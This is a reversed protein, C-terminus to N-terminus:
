KALPVWNSCPAFVDAEGDPGFQPVQCRLVVFGGSAFRTIMGAVTDNDYCICLAKPKAGVNDPAYSGSKGLFSDLTLAQATGTGLMMSLAVAITRM